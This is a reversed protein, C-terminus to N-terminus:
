RRGTSAGPAAPSRYCSTKTAGYSKRVGSALASRVCRWRFGVDSHWKVAQYTSLLEHRARDRGSIDVVDHSGYTKLDALIMLAGLFGGLGRLLHSSLSV